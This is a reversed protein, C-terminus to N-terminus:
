LQLNATAHVLFLVSGSLGERHALQDLQPALHVWREQMRSASATQEALPSDKLVALLQFFVTGRLSQEEQESLAQEAARHAALQGWLVEQCRLALGWIQARADGIAEESLQSQPAAACMLLELGLGLAARVRELSTEARRAAEAADRASSDNELSASAFDLSIRLLEPVQIALAAIDQRGTLSALAKRVKGAVLMRDHLLLTAEWSRTCAESHPEARERIGVVAALKAISALTHVNGAFGQSSEIRAAHKLAEAAVDAYAPPALSLSHQWLLHPRSQLFAALVAPQQKGAALLTQLRGPRVMGAGAEYALMVHQVLCVDETGCAAGHTGCLRVLRSLLAAPEAEAAALLGDFDLHQAALDFSADAGTLLLLLSSAAGKARRFSARWAPPMHAGHAPEVGLDQTPPQQSAELAYSEVCLTCAAQLMRRAEEGGRSLWWQVEAAGGPGALAAQLALMALLLV